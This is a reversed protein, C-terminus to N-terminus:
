DLVNWVSRVVPEESNLAKSFLLCFGIVYLYSWYYFIVKVRVQDQASSFKNLHRLM